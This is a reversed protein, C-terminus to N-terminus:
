APAEAGAPVKYRNYAWLYQAPCERILDELAANVERAAQKADRPLVPIPRWHMRYGRGRPLREAFTAFVAAGTAHHLRAVLTMTYAPRGFFPAWEGEGLSPAQDPLM